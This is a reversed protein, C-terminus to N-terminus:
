PLAKEPYMKLKQKARIKEMVEPKMIRYLEDQGAWEMDFHNAECLAALTVMVGGIEQRPEGVPRNYVYEVLQLAEEKTCDLSQVLELAEELFRWNRVPRNVAVELGFCEVAWAKVKLQFHGM